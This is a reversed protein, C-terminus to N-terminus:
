PKPINVFPIADGTIQPLQGNWKEIASLEIVSPNQRLAQGKIQIADAEAKAVILRSEAVGRASEIEKDAEAKAAAVENERQQAFQTAKIKADISAVVTTPLRFDGAWYLREVIIGFPAVQQRVREEVETILEAKGQGYM